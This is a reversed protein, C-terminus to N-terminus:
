SMTALHAALRDLNQENAEAFRSENRYNGRQPGHMVFRWDGGPRPDFEHFTNTFGKPGWWRALHDAVTWAGFVLERPADVVRATVIEREAQRTAEDNAEDMM